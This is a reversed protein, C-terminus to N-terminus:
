SRRPTASTNQHLSKRTQSNGDTLANGVVGDADRQVVDRAILRIEDDSHGVPIFKVGSTHDEIVLKPGNSNSQMVYSQQVMAAGAVYGGAAFKSVRRNSNITDLLNHHEATAKANVVYEGTSLRAPISDSTTTGPGRVYGGSAFKAAQGASIVASIGAEAPVANAGFSFLSVAEALDWAPGTLLDIAAYQATTVAAIAAIAAATNALTQKSTNSDSSKPLEINFAKALVTTILYQIGLKILSSILGSVAQRATDLLATKISGGFALAHGISDAFGNDLTSFFDTFSKQAGNAVTTFGKSLEGLSTELRTAWTGVGRDDALQAQALAAALTAQKYQGATIVGELYAQNNAKQTITLKELAGANREYLAAIDSQVQKAQELLTLNARLSNLQDQILRQGRARLTEGVRQIETSVTLATGYQGLLKIQEAIGHSYENLPNIADQYNKKVVNLQAAYIAANQPEDASLKNLAEQAAIYTRLPGAADTYQKNLESQYAANEVIVNIKDRLTKTEAEDLPINTKKYEITLRDLQQKEKLADSYAGINSIQDDLNENTRSLNDNRSAIAQLPAAEKANVADINAAYHKLHQEATQWYDLTEQPTVKHTLTSVYNKYAAELQQMEQRAAKAEDKISDVSAIKADAKMTNQLVMVENNMNKVSTTASQYESSAAKIQAETAEHDRALMANSSAVEKMAGIQTTLLSIDAQTDIRKQRYLATSKLGAENVANQSALLAKQRGNEQETESASESYMDTGKLSRGGQLTRVAAEGVSVQPLIKNIGDAALSATNLTAERGADSMQHYLKVINAIASAIEVLVAVLAIAGLASFAAQVIPGSGVLTSLFSAALRNASTLNGRAVGLVSTMGRVGAAGAAAGQGVGAFGGSTGSAAQVAARAAQSFGQVTTTLVQLQPITAALSNRLSFLSTTFTSTARTASGMATGASTSASQVQKLSTAANRTATAVSSLGSANLKNIQAQLESCSSGATKAANSVATLKREISPDVGDTVAIQYSTTQDAM